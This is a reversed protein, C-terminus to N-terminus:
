LYFFIVKWESFIVTFNFFSFLYFTLKFFIIRFQLSKKHCAGANDCSLSISLISAAWFLSFYALILFTLVGIFTALLGLKEPFLVWITMGVIGASPSSFAWTTTNKETMVWWYSYSVPWSQCVRRRVFSEWQCWSGLSAYTWM